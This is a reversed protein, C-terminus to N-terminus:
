CFRQGAMPQCLQGGTQNPYGGQGAVGLKQVNTLPADPLTAHHAPSRVLLWITLAVAAAIMVIASAALTAARNSHRAPPTSPRTPATMTSM